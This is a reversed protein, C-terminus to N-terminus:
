NYLAPLIDKAAVYIFLVANGEEEKATVPSANQHHVNCNNNVYM